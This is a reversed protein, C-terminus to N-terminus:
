QQMLILFKSIVTGAQDIDKCYQNKIRAVYIPINVNHTEVIKFCIHFFTLFTSLSLDDRNSCM